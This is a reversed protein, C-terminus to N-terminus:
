GRGRAAPKRKVNSKGLLLTSPSHKRVRGGSKAKPGAAPTKWRKMMSLSFYMAAPAFKKQTHKERRGRSIEEVFRGPDLRRQNLAAADNGPKTKKSM